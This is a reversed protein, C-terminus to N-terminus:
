QEKKQKLEKKLENYRQNYKEITAIYRQLKRMLADNHRQQPQTDTDYTKYSGFDENTKCHTALLYIDRNVIKITGDKQLKEQGFDRLTLKKISKNLGSLEKSIASCITQLGYNKKAATWEKPQNPYNLLTHIHKPIPAQLLFSHNLLMFLYFLNKM